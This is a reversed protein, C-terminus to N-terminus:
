ITRWENIASILFYLSLFALALSAVYNIYYTGKQGLANKLWGSSLIFIAKTALGIFAYIFALILFKVTYSVDIKILNVFNPVFSVYFVIDKPNLLSTVIGNKFVTYISVTEEHYFFQNKSAAKEIKSTPWMRTALYFVYIAGLIKVAIFAQNHSAFVITTGFAAILISAYSGVNVGIASIFGILMGYRLTFAATYIVSPGPTVCLVISTLFFTLM